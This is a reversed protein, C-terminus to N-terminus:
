FVSDFPTVTMGGLRTLNLIIQCDSLQRRFYIFYVHTSVVAIYNLFDASTMVFLRAVKQIAIYM